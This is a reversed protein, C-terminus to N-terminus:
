FFPNPINLIVRNVRFSAKKVIVNEPTYKGVPSEVIHGELLQGPQLTPLNLHQAQFLFYVTGNENLSKRTEYKEKEERAEIQLDGSIEAQRSHHGTAVLHSGYRDDASLVFGHQMEHMAYSQGMMGLVALAIMARKKM